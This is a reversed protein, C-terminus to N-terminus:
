SCPSEECGGDTTERMKISSNQGTCLLICQLQGLILEHAIISFDSNNYLCVWLDDRGFLMNATSHRNTSLILIQPIFM